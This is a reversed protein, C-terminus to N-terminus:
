NREAHLDEAEMAKRHCSQKQSEVLVSRHHRLLGLEHCRRGSEVGDSVHLHVCGARSAQLGQRQCFYGHSGSSTTGKQGKVRSVM